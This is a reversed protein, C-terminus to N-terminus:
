YIIFTCFPYYTWKVGKNNNNNAPLLNIYIKKKQTPIIGQLSLTALSVLSNRSYMHKTYKYQVLNQVIFFKSSYFCYLTDALRACVFLSDIRHDTSDIMFYLRERQRASCSCTACVRERLWVTLKRCKTQIKLIMEMTTCACISLAYLTCHM